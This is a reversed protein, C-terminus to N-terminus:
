KLQEHLMQVDFDTTSIDLKEVNCAKLKNVQDVFQKMIYVREIARSSFKCEHVANMKFLAMDGRIKFAFMVVPGSSYAFLLPQQYNKSLLEGEKAYAGEIGFVGIPKQIWQSHGTVPDKVYESTNKERNVLSGMDLIDKVTKFEKM